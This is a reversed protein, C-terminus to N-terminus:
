LSLRVGHKSENNNYLGDAHERTPGINKYMFTIIIVIQSISYKMNILESIIKRYRILVIFYIQIIKEIYESIIYKRKCESLKGM